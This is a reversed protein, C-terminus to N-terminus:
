VARLRETLDNTLNECFAIARDNSCARYHKEVTKIVSIAHEIKVKRGTRTRAGNALAAVMEAAIEHWPQGTESPLEEWTFGDSAWAESLDAISNMGRRVELQGAQVDVMDAGAELWKLMEKPGLNSTPWFHDFCIRAAVQHPMRTRFRNFERFVEAEQEEYIDAISADANLEGLEQDFAVWFEDDSMEDWDDALDHGTVSEVSLAL